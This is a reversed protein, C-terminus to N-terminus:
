IITSIRNFEITYLRKSVICYNIHWYDTKSEKKKRVTKFGSLTSVEKTVSDSFLKKNCWKYNFEIIKMFKLSIRFM